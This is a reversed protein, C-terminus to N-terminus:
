SLISFEIVNREDTGWYNRATVCAAIDITSRTHEQLIEKGFSCSNQM